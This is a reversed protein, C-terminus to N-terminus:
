TAKRLHVPHIIFRKNKGIKINVIYCNGRKGEIKGIRGQIAKPFGTKQSLERVVAVSEGRELKQFYKSFRIKGKERVKKRKLM